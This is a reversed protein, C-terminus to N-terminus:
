GAVRLPAPQEAFLSMPNLFLFIVKEHSLKVARQKKLNWNKISCTEKELRETM